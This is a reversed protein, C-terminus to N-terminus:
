QPLEMAPCGKEEYNNWSDDWHVGDWNSWAEEWLEEAVLSPHKERPGWAPIVYDFVVMWDEIAEEL